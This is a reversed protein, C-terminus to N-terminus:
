VSGVQWGRELYVAMRIQNQKRDAPGSFNIDIVEPTIGNAEKYPHQRMIRGIIQELLSQNAIPTALIVSSLRNISIGESFISRSGCISTVAGSEIDEAIRKRAEFGTEGTVLVCNEGLHEKVNALFEVRDAIILVSHGKAIQTRAIVSIYEQYDPDYLLNNIKKAWIAGPTL